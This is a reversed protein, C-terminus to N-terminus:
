NTIVDCQKHYMWKILTKLLITCILVIREVSAFYQGPSCIIMPIKIKAMKQVFTKFEHMTPVNYKSWWIKAM